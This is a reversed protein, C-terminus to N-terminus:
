RDVLRAPMTLVLLGAVAAVAATVYMGAATSSTLDKLRGVITPGFFGGLNGVSNITAIGAAAAVGGLFATPLSWFLPSAAIIGAAAVTLCMIAAVTNAGALPALALGAAGALLPGATHWRRERRRDASRGLALM